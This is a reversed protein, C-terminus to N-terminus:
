KVPPNQVQVDTKDKAEPSSSNLVQRHVVEESPESQKLVVPANAAATADKIMKEQVMSIYEIKKNVEDRMQSILGAARTVHQQLDSLATVYDKQWKKNDEKVAKLDQSVPGVMTKVDAIEKSFRGFKDDFEQNLDNIRVGLADFNKKLSSVTEKDESVFVELADSQKKYEKIKDNLSNIQANLGSVQDKQELINKKTQELVVAQSLLTRYASAGLFILAAAFLVTFIFGGRKLANNSKPANQTPVDTM